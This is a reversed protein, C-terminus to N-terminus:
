DCCSFVYYSAEHLFNETSGSLKNVTNMLFTQESNTTRICIYQEYWLINAPINVNVFVRVSRTNWEQLKKTKKNKQIALINSNCVINEARKHVFLFICVPRLIFVLDIRNQVESIDVCNTVFYIWRANRLFSFISLPLSTYFGAKGTKGVKGFNYDLCFFPALSEYFFAWVKNWKLKIAPIM